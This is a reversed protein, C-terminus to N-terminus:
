NKTTTDENVWGAEAVMKLAPTTMVRNEIRRGFMRAIQATRGINKPHRLAVQICMLVSFMEEASMLIDFIETNRQIYQEYDNAAAAELDDPNIETGNNSM